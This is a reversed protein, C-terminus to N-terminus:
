IGGDRRNEFTLQLLIPTGRDCRLVFVAETVGPGVTGALVTHCKLDGYPASGLADCTDAPSNTHGM